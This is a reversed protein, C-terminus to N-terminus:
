FPASNDASNENVVDPSLVKYIEKLRGLLEDFTVIMVDSFSNRVLEFSKKEHTSSPTLGLVVICRVSYAHIDYLGSEEKLNLLTKHLNFRQDLIQVVAGSLEASAAHVNDRYATRTLLESGPKKIEIIALNGTSATALLFDAIKGGSKNFRAGGVYPNDQIMMSPVAFALSLVFPNVLFFSQWHREALGKNLKSEFSAILEKLTIREIDAMLSLLALPETKALEEANERVLKVVTTQDRKSLKTQEGGVNTMENIADARLKKRKQPFKTHDAAHLLHQYAILQKDARAGRQYRASIRRIGKRLEHFRRLGLIFFPPAIEAGNSDNGGHVMLISIGSISAIAECIFRNEWHLGLGFEFQKAFGEPLKSLLTVVDESNKPLKYPERVPQSLVIRELTGYKPLLYDAKDPRVNIPWITLYDPQVNLIRKRTPNRSASNIDVFGDCFFVDVGGEVAEELELVPEYGTLSNAHALKKFESPRLSTM